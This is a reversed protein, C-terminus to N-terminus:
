PTLVTQLPSLTPAGALVAAGLYVNNGQSGSGVSNLRLTTGSWAAPLTLAAAPGPTTEGGGNISQWLQAVGAATLGWRLWVENGAVPAAGLTVTRTTTGDTYKLRYVTGSSEIWIRAGTAADNGLYLVGGGAIAAGGNEVFHVAGGYAGPLLPLAWALSADVGLLLGTKGLAAVYQWAPQSHVVTRAIGYTDTPAATAARTLTGVQGSLADLALELAPLWVLPHRAARDTTRRYGLAPLTVGMAAVM